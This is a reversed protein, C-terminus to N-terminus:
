KSIIEKNKKKVNEKSKITTHTEEQEISGLEDYARQLDMIMESLEMDLTKSIEDDTCTMESLNEYEIGLIRFLDQKLDDELVYSDETIFIDKSKFYREIFRKRRFNNKGFFWVPKPVPFTMKAIANDRIEAIRTRSVGLEESFDNLSKESKSEILDNIIKTEKETFKKYREKLEAKNYYSGLISDIGVIYSLARSNDDPVFGEEDLDFFTVLKNTKTLYMFHKKFAKFRDISGFVSRIYKNDLDKKNLSLPNEERFPEWTLMFKVYIKRFNKLSGFDLMIKHLREAEIGSKKSLEEIERTYGFVSGVGADKLRNYHKKALKNHGNRSRIYAFDSIAKKFESVVLGIPIEDTPEDDNEILQPKLNYDEIFRQMTDEPIDAGSAVEDLNKKLYERFFTTKLHWLNLNEKCYKELRKVKDEMHESRKELLGLKDLNEKQEATIITKGQHYRSRIQNAMIGIPYGRYTSNIDIIEGTNQMYAEFLEIKEDLSLVERYKARKKYKSHSKIEMMM